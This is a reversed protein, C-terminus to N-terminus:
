IYSLLIITEINGGAMGKRNFLANATRALIDSM